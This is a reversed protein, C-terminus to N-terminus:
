PRNCLTTPTPNPDSVPRNWIKQRLECTGSGSGVRNLCMYYFKNLFLRYEFIKNFCGKSIIGSTNVQCKNRRDSPHHVQSARSSNENSRIWIRHSISRIRWRQGRTGNRGDRRFLANPLSCRPRQSEAVKSLINTEQFYNGSARLFHLRILWQLRDTDEM